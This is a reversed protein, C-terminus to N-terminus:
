NTEMVDVVKIGISKLLGLNNWILNKDTANVLITLKM